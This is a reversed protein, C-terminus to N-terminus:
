RGARVAAPEVACAIERGEHRARSLAPLLLAVLVTIIGVVIILEVLTYGCRRQLCTASARRRDRIFDRLMPSRGRQGSAGSRPPGGRMFRIEPQGDGDGAPGTTAEVVLNAASCSTSASAGPGAIRQVLRRVAVEGMKEFPGDISTLKSARAPPDFNDFGCVSVDEPM